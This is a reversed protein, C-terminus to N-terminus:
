VRGCYVLFKSLILLISLIVKQGPKRRDRKIARLALGFPMLSPALVFHNKEKDM